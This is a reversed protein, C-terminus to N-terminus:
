RKEPTGKWYAFGLYEGASNDFRRDLVKLNYIGTLPAVFEVIEYSNDYSTSSSVLLDNPGYVALDFEGRLEDFTPVTSSSAPVDTISDWALVARVVQGQTASISYYKPFDNPYVTEFNVGGSAGTVLEEASDCEIGGAGDKESLRSDGEVNVVASAMLIARIAEPWSKLEASRQMLLAACGAAHPAAFSTGDLTGLCTSPGTCATTTIGRGPAVVDPEERDGNPSSPDGYCSFNSIIDNSNSADGNDDYSGVTIVNWGKGPTSVNYGPSFCQERTGINGAITVFTVSRTRVVYDVYRDKDGMATSNDGSGASYNIVNAGNNLSWEICKIFEDNYFPNKTNGSLLAPAGYAVGKYTPHTSAIIGAVASAHSGVPSESTTNCTLGDALNSHGFYIANSELVSVKVGSGTFGRSWVKPADIAPVSVNSGLKDEEDLYLADVTNLQELVPILNGPITVVLVPAYEAQYRVKGGRAEILQKVAETATKHFSKLAEIQPGAQDRAAAARDIRPVPGPTRVWVVVPILETPQAQSVKDALKQELKGRFNQRQKEALIQEVEAELVERDNQDLNIVNIRTTPVHLVKVRTIQDVNVENLAQLESEPVKLRQAAIAKAAQGKPSAPQLQVNTEGPQPNPNIDPTQAKVTLAALTGMSAIPFVLALALRKFRIAAM